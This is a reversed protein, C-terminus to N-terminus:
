WQTNPDVIKFHRMEPANKDVESPMVVRSRLIFPICKALEYATIDEIPDWTMQLPQVIKLPSSVVSTYYEIKKEVEAIEEATLGKCYFRGMGFKEKIQSYEFGPKQIFSQFKEDLWSVFEPVGFDLGYHGEELYASYKENFEKTTMKNIDM